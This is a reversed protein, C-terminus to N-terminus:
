NGGPQEEGSKRRDRCWGRCGSGVTVGSFRELIDMHLHWKMPRWYGPKYVAGHGTEISREVKLERREGQRGGASVWKM